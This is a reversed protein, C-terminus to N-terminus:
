ISAILKELGPFSGLKQCIPVKDWNRNWHFLHHLVFKLQMKDKACGKLIEFIMDIYYILFLTNAQLATPHVEHTPCM